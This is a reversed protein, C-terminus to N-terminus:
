DQFQATGYGAARFETGDMGLFYEEPREQSSFQMPSLVASYAGANNIVVVDGPELYPMDINEAIVDTATCLNGVLDVTERPASEKGIATFSFSYRGTYLPERGLCERDGAYYETLRAISPRLFGNLTNKLIIFTKGRSIKRDMVKMAYYGSKGVAYRGVEILIRTKREGVANKLSKSLLSLDVEEDRDAYPIGIGSGLNIYALETGTAAEVRTALDIIRRHYDAIVKTNLEQSRQHVHIGMIHVHPCQSATLYTILPEEDIGFKSSVGIGGDFATEPNIRVGINIAEEKSAAIKEILEIEHLSDAILNAKKWVAEIEKASKGPASFYINEPLTGHDLAALVEGASAADAGFGHSFMTDLVNPNHNCKVSYLFDVFPMAMKLKTIREIISRKDYLYFSDCKEAIRSIATMADM